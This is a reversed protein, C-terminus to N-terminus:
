SCTSHTPFPTCVYTSAAAHSCPACFGFTQFTCDPAQLVRCGGMQQRTTCGGLHGPNQKPNPPNLHQIEVVVTCRSVQERAHNRCLVGVGGLVGFHFGVCRSDPTTSIIIQAVRYFPGFSAEFAAKDRAARSGPGVWLAQLAALSAFVPTCCCCCCHYPDFGQGRLLEDVAAPSTRSCLLTTLLLGKCSMCVRWSM